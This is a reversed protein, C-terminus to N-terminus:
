DPGESKAERIQTVYVLHFNNLERYKQHLHQVFFSFESLSASIRM